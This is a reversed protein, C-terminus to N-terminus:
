MQPANKGTSPSGKPKGILKKIIKTGNMRDIRYMHFSSPRVPMVAKNARIKSRFLVLRHDIIKQKTHM